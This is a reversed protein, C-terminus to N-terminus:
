ARRLDHAGSFRKLYLSKRQSRFAGQINMVRPKRRGEAVKPKGFTTGALMAWSLDVCAEGEDEDRTCNGSDLAGMRGLDVAGSPADVLEIRRNM